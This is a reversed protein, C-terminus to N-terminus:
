DHTEEGSDQNNQKRYRTYCLLSAGLWLATLVYCFGNGTRLGNVFNLVACFLMMGASILM